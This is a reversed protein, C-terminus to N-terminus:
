RGGGLLCGGGRLRPGSREGERAPFEKGPSSSLRKLCLLKRRCSSFVKGKETRASSDKRKYPCRELEKEGRPQKKRKKRKSVSPKAMREKRILYLKEREM